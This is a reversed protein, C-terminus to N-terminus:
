ACFALSVHLFSLHAALTFQFSKVGTQILEVACELEFDSPLDAVIYIILKLNQHNCRMHKGNQFSGLLASLTALWLLAPYSTLPVGKGGGM